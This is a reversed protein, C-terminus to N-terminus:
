VSGNECLHDSPWSTNRLRPPEPIQQTAPGYRTVLFSIMPNALSYSRTGRWISSSAAAREIKPPNVAELAWVNAINMRSALWSWGRNREDKRSHAPILQPEEISSYVILRRRGVTISKLREEGILEYIKTNGLGTLSRAAKVTVLGASSEPLIRGDRGGQFRIRVTPSALDLHVVFSYRLLIIRAPRKLAILRSVANCNKVMPQPVTNELAVSAMTATTDYMLVGFRGQLYTALEIAVDRVPDPKSQSTYIKAAKSLWGAKSTSRRSKGGRLRDAERLLLDAVDVVPDTSLHPSRELAIVISYFLEELAKTQADEASM